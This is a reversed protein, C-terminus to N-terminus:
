FGRSHTFTGNTAILPQLSEKLNNTPDTVSSSSLPAINWPDNQRGPPRRFPIRGKCAGVREQFWRPLGSDPQHR